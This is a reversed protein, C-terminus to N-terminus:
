NAWEFRDKLRNLHTFSIIGHHQLMGVIIGPHIGIDKAFDVVARESRPSNAKFARFQDRGVLMNEAWADAEAELGDGEGGRDDAFTKGKHLVIHAAEHFFTWWFHDNSKMRLSMQIIARDGEIWRASGFLCTKSIPKELVLAVGATRCLESMRPYFVSPEETTLGRIEHVAKSFSGADFAPLTLSRARREGLLLWAAVHNANTEYKKSQRHNVALNALRARMADPGGISFFALVGDLIRAPDRTDPLAGRNRLEAIPFDRIFDYVDASRSEETQRAQFLDWDAQLATWIYAKMGLVRELKLATEATVPNSGSIITSVLKPSLDALRAFEAQSWDRAEIHEALHEGPHIAWDPALPENQLTAAAPSM